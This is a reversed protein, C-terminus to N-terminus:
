RLVDNKEGSQGDMVGESKWELSLSVKKPLDKRGYIERWLCELSVEQCIPGTSMPELEHNKM